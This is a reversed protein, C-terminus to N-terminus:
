VTDVKGVTANLDDGVGSIGVTIDGIDFVFTFSLIGFVLGSVLGGGLGAVM